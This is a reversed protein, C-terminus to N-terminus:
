KFYQVASGVNEVEQASVAILVKWVILARANVFIVM